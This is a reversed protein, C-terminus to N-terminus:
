KVEKLPELHVGAADLTFGYSFSKLRDFTGDPKIGVLSLDAHWSIVGGTFDRYPQDQFITSAGAAKARDEFEKQERPNWYFPTKQDKDTDPYPRNAPKGALPANTTVTQVWNFDKYDAGTVKATLQIQLGTKTARYINTTIATEAKDRSTNPLECLGLPDVESIPNNSVYAYSNIGGFLGIPDSSIWRALSPDYARYHTLLLGSPAHAYYGTVTFTADKDGTLKTSRGYPDYDYRARLTATTDALARISGLHDRTYFFSDTGQQEGQPFFRKTTTSGASDREECLEESCWLFRTDNTVVNNDKEVIRVRRSLGDYTFESRHTGNNIATLRNEADWEFTRTGDSTENGNPDFIFSKSAGSVNVQYTNTRTNGSYDTAQVEVTNTGSALLATGAFKNDAGVTVPKSQITVRAAESLTGGFKTIGGPDQSTIRNMNNYSAKLPVDDIQETTRNGAPDYAYGYRKLITPTADTTRWTAGTLQDARDYFLDYAKAPDSDTQQTWSSINGVVDYTYDFKSITIGGTKQNLIEQLRRDGSNAFYNYTTTQGNPYSVSQVDRRRLSTLTISHGSSM